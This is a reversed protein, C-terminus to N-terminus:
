YEWLHQAIQKGCACRTPVDMLEHWKCSVHAFEEVYFRAAIEGLRVFSNIAKTDSYNGREHHKQLNRVICACQDETRKNNIACLCCDWAQHEDFKGNHLADMLEMVRKESIAM